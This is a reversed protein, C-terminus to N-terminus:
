IDSKEINRTLIDTTIKVDNEKTDHILRVKSNRSRISSQELGEKSYDIVGDEYEIEEQVPKDPNKIIKKGQKIVKDFIQNFRYGGDRKDLLIKTSDSTPLPYGFYQSLDSEDKPVLELVGTNQVNNYVIAKNFFVIDDEEWGEGFKDFKEVTSFDEISQILDSSPDKGSFPYEIIYPYIKDFFTRFKGKNEQIYEKGDKSMRLEVEDEVYYNPIYSHWSIWKNSIFSFSLTWSKGGEIKTILIRLHKPDFTGHLGVDGKYHNDEMSNFPLHRQFWRRVKMDSLVTPTKGGLLIVKGKKSNAYVFGFPTTILMRHQSGDGLDMPPANTFMRPDGLYVGVGEVNLQSQANYIQTNDEFRVLVQKSGVSDVSTIKGFNKPFDFYSMPKYVRWGNIEEDMVEKDGYIARNLYKTTYDKTKDYDERLHAYFSERNQKSFTKNYYFSNDHLIPVRSEQLWDNPIAGEGVVRPYFNGEDDNIAKRESVNVQSEVIATPVGYVYQYIDGLIKISNGLGRMNDLNVNKVGFKEAIQVVLDKLIKITAREIATTKNRLVASVVKMIAGVATVALGVISVVVGAPPFIYAGSGYTVIALGIAMTINGAVDLISAVAISKVKAGIGSFSTELAAEDIRLNMDLPKTSIWFMPKGLSGEEDLSIDMGDNENVTTREYIQQKRKISFRNIYTDGGFIPKFDDKLLNVQGTDVTSYSYMRGWQNSKNRKISGYYSNVKFRTRTDEQEEQPEQFHTMYIERGYEIARFAQTMLTGGCIARKENKYYLGVNIGNGVLTDQGDRRGYYEYAILLKIMAKKAGEYDSWVSGEWWEEIEEEQIGSLDIEYSGSNYFINDRNNITTPVNNSVYGHFGEEIDDDTGYIVDGEVSFELRHSFYQGGGEINVYKMPKSEDWCAQEEYEFHLFDDFSYNKVLTLALPAIVSSLYNADNINEAVEEGAMTAGVIVSTYFGQHMGEKTVGDIVEEIPQGLEFFEELSIDERAGETSKIFRSLDPPILPSYETAYLLPKETKIYVSSERNTNNLTKGDEIANVGNALYKGYEIRRQKYGSNEVPISETFTAISNISNGFNNYPVLKEFLTNMNSYVQAFDTGNFSPIGRRGKYELAVTTALVLSYKQTNQTLFKYEANDKLKVIEGKGEGYDIAEIKLIGSDISSVRGFHTDPSHFTFQDKGQNGKFPKLSKAIQYGKLPKINSEVFLPDATLSNYPYNPFYREEGEYDEYKGVNYLSGKAMVSMNGESRDGRLIKFGVIADKEEQTLDSDVIAQILSEKDIEVGVPYIYTEGVRTKFRPSVLEDPFKHHRIPTGVLEGWIDPNNPYLESSEVYAFEGRQYIGKYCDDDEDFEDVTETVSATNYVKWRPLSYEDDECRGSNASMVDDSIEEGLDFSTAKRSPIHFAESERGNDLIFVGELPYVEDRMFSKYKVSNEPDGYGEAEDKYPLQYSVWNTKVKNWIQQLNVKRDERLGYWIINGDSTTVGKAYKYYPFKLFLEESPLQMLTESEGSYTVEYDTSSIPYTGLIKSTSIANVTEIVIVTFYKYIGTRELNSITVRVSKNTISDFDQTARERENIVLPNTVNYVSTYLKGNENSYAVGFQVTGEKIEGGEEITTNTIIPVHFNPMVKIKNCDLEGEIKIMQYENDPNFVEKFPLDGLDVFRMTNYDDTWYIQVSDNTVKISIQHIPFDENFNLCDGKVLTTYVKNDEVGIENNDLFYITKRIAGVYFVGIPKVGEEFKFLLKNGEETQYAYEGENETSTVTANLAFSISGKEARNNEIDDLNLGVGKTYDIEKM